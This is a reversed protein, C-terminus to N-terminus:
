LVPARGLEAVLGRVRARIEDRVQEDTPRGEETTRWEEAGPVDADIAITRSAPIEGVARPPEHDIFGEAGTGSMLPVLRDSVATQPTVGASIATWGPLGSANFYAAAIRSRFAGHQCVFLVRRDPDQSV